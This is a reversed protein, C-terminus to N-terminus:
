LQLFKKEHVTSWSLSSLNINKVSQKTRRGSRQYAEDLVLDLPAIIREFTQYPWPFGAVVFLLSCLEETTKPLHM